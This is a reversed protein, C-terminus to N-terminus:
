KGVVHLLEGPKLGAKFFSTPDMARAPDIEEVSFGADRLRETYDSGYIRVHDFQGYVKKREAPDTISPDEYTAARGREIPVLIIGTGGPKLVRHLERMAKRDDPVHELVHSCLVVDFQDNGFPLVTVDLDMTDPPYSYGPEHKDGAVYHLGPLSKLKDRLGREPAIHLVHHGARPLGKSRLHMWIM